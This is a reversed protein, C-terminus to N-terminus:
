IILEPNGVSGGVASPQTLVDYEPQLRKWSIGLLRPFTATFDEPLANPKTM